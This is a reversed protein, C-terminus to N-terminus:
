LQKNRGWILKKSKRKLEAVEQQLESVTINLDAIEKMREEVIGELEQIRSEGKKIEIRLNENENDIRNREAQEIRTEINAMRIKSDYSKGKYILEKNKRQLEGPKLIEEANEDIIIIGNENTIHGELKDKKRKIKRYIASQDCDYKECFEKITM